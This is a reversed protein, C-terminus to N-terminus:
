VFIASLRRALLRIASAACASAAVARKHSSAYIALRPMGLWSPPGWLARRRPPTASGTRRCPYCSLERTSRTYLCGRRRVAPQGTTQGRGKRPALAWGGVACSAPSKLPRTYMGTCKKATLHVQSDSPWPKTGEWRGTNKHKAQM